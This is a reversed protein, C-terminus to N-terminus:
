SNMQLGTTAADSEVHDKRAGFLYIHVNEGDWVVEDILLRLATRKQELSMTDFASGFNSLTEQM